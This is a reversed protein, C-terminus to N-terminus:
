MFFAWIKSTQKVIYTLSSYISTARAAMTTRTLFEYTKTSNHEVFSNVEIWNRVSQSVM